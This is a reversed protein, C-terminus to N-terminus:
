DLVQVHDLVLQPVLLLEDLLEFAVQRAKCVLVRGLNCLHLGDVVLQLHSHHVELRLYAVSVLLQLLGLVLHYRLVLLDHLESHLQFHALVLQGNVLLPRKLLLIHLTVALLGLQLLLLCLLLDDPEFALESVRLRFYLRRVFFVVTQLVLQEFEFGVVHIPLTLAHAQVRGLAAKLLVLTALHLLGDILQTLPAALKSIFILLQVRLVVEEV